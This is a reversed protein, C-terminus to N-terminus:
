MLKLKDKKKKKKGKKKVNFCYEVEDINAVSGRSRSFIPLMSIPLLKFNKILIERYELICRSGVDRDVQELWEERNNRVLLLLFFPPSGNRLFLPRRKSPRDGSPSLGTEVELQTITAESQDSDINFPSGDTEGKFLVQAEPDKVGHM